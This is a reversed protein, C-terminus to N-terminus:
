SPDAAESAAIQADVMSDQADLPVTVLDVAGSRAARVLSSVDQPQVRLVVALQGGMGGVGDGVQEVSVKELVLQPDVEVEGSAATGTSWVDVVDGAHLDIPAHLPDVGVTVKRTPGFSSEEFASRPVLEGANVPVRLTGVPQEIAPIYDDAAAGLSVSVPRLQWQESGVSLDREAQWVAITQSGHSLLRAGAFMSGVVLIVGIWLRVDSWRPARIRHAPTASAAVADQGSRRRWGRRFALKQM